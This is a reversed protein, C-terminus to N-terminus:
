PPQTVLLTAPGNLPTGPDCPQYNWFLSIQDLQCLESTTNGTVSASRHSRCSVLECALTAFTATRHPALTFTPAEAM